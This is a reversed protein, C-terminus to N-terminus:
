WLRKPALWTLSELVERPDEIADLQKAITYLMFIWSPCDKFPREKLRQEISKDGYKRRYKTRADVFCQLM